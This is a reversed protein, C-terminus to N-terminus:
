FLDYLFLLGFYFAGIMVLISTNAALVIFISYLYPHKFRKKHYACILFLFLLGVSYNRAIPGFYFLFPVSFTILTKAIPSFPAKKWLAYIAGICFLWNIIYMSYPYLKLNSFPKIILYWLIPHGEIRTLYFIESIKLRAIEFAHTEDWFPVHIFMILFTIVAFIFICYRSLFNNLKSKLANM